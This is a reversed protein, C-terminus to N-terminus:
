NHAIRSSRNVRRVWDALSRGIADPQDEQIFHFGRGVYRTELHRIRQTYWPVASPPVVVGPEAYLLLMPVDTREMLANIRELTARTSAPEGAIPIERPWALMPLRTQPDRWPARYFDMEAATLTRNVFGPLVREIFINNEVVLKSGAVPDKFARFMNGMEEGMAEFSPQPFAPPLVGEMFAIAKVNLPNRRAYEFGLTAGWDHVVLTVNRLGLAEIFGEVYKYHEDFTYAIRPKDSKGMGILDVAIARGHDSVHPIVNRWLYSSTPNGHIFVIPDGSGKEVYHMSSQLVRVYRSEFPFQAAIPAPPLKYESNRAVSQEAEVAPSTVALATGFLLMGRRFISNLGHM